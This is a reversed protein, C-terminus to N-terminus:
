DRVAACVYELVCWLGDGGALSGENFGQEGM